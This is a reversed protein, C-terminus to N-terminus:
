KKKSGVNPQRSTKNFGLLMRLRQRPRKLQRRPVSRLRRQKLLRCLSLRGRKDVHVSFLVSSWPLETMVTTVFYGSVAAASEAKEAEFKKREEEAQRRAEEVKKAEEEAQRMKEEIMKTEEEKQRLAAHPTGYVM